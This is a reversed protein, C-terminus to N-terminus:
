SNALRRLRAARDTATTIREKDRDPLRWPEGREEKPNALRAARQNEAYRDSALYEATGEESIAAALLTEHILAADALPMTWQVTTTPQTTM